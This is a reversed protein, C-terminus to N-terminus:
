MVDREPSPTAVPGPATAKVSLVTFRFGPVNPAPWTIGTTVTLELPSTVFRVVVCNTTGGCAIVNVPYTTPVPEVCLVVVSVNCFTFVLIYAFTVGSFNATFAFPNTVAALGIVARSM